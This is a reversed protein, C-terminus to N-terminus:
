WRLAEPVESFLEALEPISQHQRRMEQWVTPHPMRGLAQILRHRRANRASGYERVRARYSHYADCRAQLLPRRNLALADITFRARSHARSGDAARPEFCFTDRLDLILLELPDEIRPMVLLPDGSLPPLLPAGRKRSVEVAKGSQDFVAFKALKKGNCSGCSYLYNPWVFTLEPYLSKPHHHEIEDAVSDECYM